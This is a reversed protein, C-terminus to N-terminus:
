LSAILHLAAPTAGGATSTLGYTARGVNVVHSSPSRLVRDFDLASVVVPARMRGDVVEALLAIGAEATARDPLPRVTITLNTVRGSGDSAVFALLTAQPGVPRTFNGNLPSWDGSMVSSPLPPARAANSSSSTVATNWRAAVESLALTVDDFEDTTRSAIGAPTACWRTYPATRSLFATDGTVTGKREFASVADTFAAWPTREMVAELCEITVAHNAAAATNSTSISEAIRHALAEQSPTAATANAKAIEDTRAVSTSSPSGNSPSGNSTTWRKACPADGPDLDFRARETDTFDRGFLACGDALARSPDFSRVQAELKTPGVYGLVVQHSNAGVALSRFTLGDEDAFRGLSTRTSVHLLTLGGLADATLLNTGGDVFSLAAIDGDTDLRVSSGGGDITFVDVESADAVAVSTGDPHLAISRSPPRTLASRFVETADLANVVVIGAGIEYYALRNAQRGQVALAAARDSITREVEVSTATIRWVHLLGNARLGAVRNGALARLTVIPSGSISSAHLTPQGDRLVALAGKEDSVAIGLGDLNTIALPTAVRGRTTRTGLMGDAGLPATVIQGDAQAWTLTHGDTSLETSIPSVELARGGDVRNRRTDLVTVLGDAGGTAAIGSPSWAIANVPGTHLLEGTYALRRSPELYRYDGGDTAVLIYQASSTSTAIANIPNLTVGIDDKVKGDASALLVVEGRTTAVAVTSGGDFSAATTAYKVPTRWQVSPTATSTSVSVLEGTGSTDAAVLLVTSGANAISTISKDLKTWQLTETRDVSTVAVSGDITALVLRGDRLPM